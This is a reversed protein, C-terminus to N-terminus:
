QKSIFKNVQFTPKKQCDIIMRLDSFPILIKIDVLNFNVIRYGPILTSSPFIFFQDNCIVLCNDMFEEKRIQHRTYNIWTGKSQPYHPYINFLPHSFALYTCHIYIYSTCTPIQIALQPYGSSPCPYTCKKDM